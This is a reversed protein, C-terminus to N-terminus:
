KLYYKRKIRRTKRKLRKQTKNPNCHTTRHTKRKGGKKLYEEFDASIVEFADDYNKKIINENKIQDYHPFKLETVFKSENWKKEFFKDWADALEISTFVSDENDKLFQAYWPSLSLDTLSKRLENLLPSTLDENNFKEFTIVEKSVPLIPSIALSLSISFREIIGAYCSIRNERDGISHINPFDREDINDAAINDTIFNETWSMQIHKSEIFFRVLTCFYIIINVRYSSAYNDTTDLDELKLFAKLVMEVMIKNSADNSFKDLTSKKLLNIMMKRLVSISRKISCEESYYNQLIESIKEFPFLKFIKHVASSRSSGLYAPDLEDVIQKALTDNLLLGLEQYSINTKPILTNLNFIDETEFSREGPINWYYRTFDCTIFKGVWIIYANKKATQIIKEKTKDITDQEKELKRINDYELRNGEEPTYFDTNRFINKLRDRQDALYNRSMTTLSNQLERRRQLKNRDIIDINKNGFYIGMRKLTEM